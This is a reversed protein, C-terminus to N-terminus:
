GGNLGCIRDIIDRIQFFGLRIFAISETWSIPGLGSGGDIDPNSERVGSQDMFSRFLRLRAGDGLDSDWIWGADFLCRL